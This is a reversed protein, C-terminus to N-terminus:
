VNVKIRVGWFKKVRALNWISINANRVFIIYLWFLWM